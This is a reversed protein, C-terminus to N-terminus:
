RSGNQTGSQTIKLPIVFEIPANMEESIVTVKIEFQGLERPIIVVENFASQRTHMLDKLWITLKGDKVRLSKWRSSSIDLPFRPLAEHLDTRYALRNMLSIGDMIESIRMRRRSDRLKEEARRLPNKPLDFKPPEMKEYDYKEMVLVADPFVLDIYLERAKAQGTNAVIIELEHKTQECREYIRIAQYAEDIESQPLLQSNYAEVEEAKLFQKLDDSVENWNIPTLKPIASLSLQNDPVYSLEIKSAGNLLISVNPKAQTAQATLREIDNQLARNENSLTALAEAVNDSSSRIWGPRPKRNFAKILATLVKVNLDAEENWFDVMKDATVKEIFIELKKAMIPDSERQDPATKADRERVFSMIPIGLSKAYDWEMETFSKGDKNLSGYRHGIICIYYDSQQIMEQIITWQEDDDSSFQEMGVPFHLLRQIAEMVSRRIASLDRYTSSVFIQFKKSNM